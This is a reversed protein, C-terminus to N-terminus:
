FKLDIYKGENKFNPYEPLSSDFNNLKFDSSKQGYYNEIDKKLKIIGEFNFSTINRIFREHFDKRNSILTNRMQSVWGLHRPPYYSSVLSICNSGIIERADNIYQKADNNANTILIIKNYKKRKILKLGEESTKVYYLKSDVERSSFIKIEENFQMMKKFLDTQYNNPNNEDFNYDRWIILYECRKISIAYMPLIQQEHSVLFEKAIFKTKDAFEEKNLVKTKGDVNVCRIGNEEVKEESKKVDFVVEKKSKDYYIESAIFSFAQNVKPIIGFRKREENRSYFTVYDFSDTFYSGLGIKHNESKLNFNNNLILPIIKPQTGHFLLKTEKNQCKNKNNEFKTNDSIILYINIIKFEFVSEILSKEIEKETNYFNEFNKNFQNIEQKMAEESLFDLLKELENFSINKANEYINDKKKTKDDNIAKYMNTIKKQNKQVTIDTVSEHAFDPKKNGISIFETDIIKDLLAKVEDVLEKPFNQINQIAPNEKLLKFLKKYLYQLTVIVKLSGKNVEIISFDDNGIVNKLENKFDNIMNKTIEFDDDFKIELQPLFKLSDNKIIKFDDLKNIPNKFFICENEFEQLDQELENDKKNEEIIKNIESNQEKNDDKQEKIIENDEQNKKNIVKFIDIKSIDYGLFIENKVVKSSIKWKSIDPPFELNNCGNFLYKFYMTKSTNWDTIESLSTLSSCEYFMFSMDEVSSTDWNSIGSINELSHCKYFMNKMNEVKSTNWGSFSSLSTLSTCEYFLYSMDTVISTDINSIDSISKLRKCGYFMGNMNILRGNIILEIELEKQKEKFVYFETLDKKENNIIMKCKEKNENFFISGFLRIKEKNSKSIYKIKIIQEKSIKKM